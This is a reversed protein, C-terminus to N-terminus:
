PKRFALLVSNPWWQILLPGMASTSAVYKTSVRPFVVAAHWFMGRHQTWLARKVRGVVLAYLDSAGLLFIMGFFYSFCSFCGFFGPFELVLWGWKGFWWVERGLLMTPVVITGNPHRGINGVVWIAWASILCRIRKLPKGHIRHELTLILCVGPEKKKVKSIPAFAIM